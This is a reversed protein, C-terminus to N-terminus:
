RFFQRLNKQRISSYQREAKLTEIKLDLPLIQDSQSGQLVPLRALWGRATKEQIMGELDPLSGNDAIM